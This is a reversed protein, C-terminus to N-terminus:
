GDLVMCRLSSSAGLSLGSYIRGVTVKDGCLELYYFSTVADHLAGGFAAVWIILLPVRFRVDAFLRLALRLQASLPRHRLWDHFIM